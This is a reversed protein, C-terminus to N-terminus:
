RERGENEGGLALVADGPAITGGEIVRGYVGGRGEPELARRLGPQARDMVECPKTEGEVSVLVEGVRLRGGVRRLLDVGEVLVNARRTWWPLDAGLDRMAADWSEKALFTVGRRPSAGHDGELWGDPEVRATEVTRMPGDRETRVAIALVTGRPTM